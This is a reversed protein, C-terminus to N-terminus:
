YAIVKNNPIFNISGSNNISEFKEYQVPSLAAVVLENIDVFLVGGWHMTVSGATEKLKDSVGHAITTTNLGRQTQSSDVVPGTTATSYLADIVLDNNKTTTVSVYIDTDSNGDVNYVDVSKIQDVNAYTRAFTYSTVSSSFTIQVTYNGNPPNNLYWMEIWTGVPTLKTLGTGNFTVNSVSGSVHAISVVLIANSGSTSHSFSVSSQSVQVGSNSINVFSVM